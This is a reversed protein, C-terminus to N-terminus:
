SRTSVPSTHTIAIYAVQEWSQYPVRAVLELVKFKSLTRAKGYVADLLFFLARAALGYRRRASAATAAAFVLLEAHSHQGMAGRLPARKAPDM